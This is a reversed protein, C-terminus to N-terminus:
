VYVCVCMYVRVRMSQPMFSPMIAAVTYAFLRIPSYALLIYFDNIVNYNTPFTFFFLLLFSHKLM